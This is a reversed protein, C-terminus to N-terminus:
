LLHLLRSSNMFNFILTITHNTLLLPKLFAFHRIRVQSFSYSQTQAEQFSPQSSVQQQQSQLSTLPLSQAKNTQLNELIAANQNALARSLKLLTYFSLM